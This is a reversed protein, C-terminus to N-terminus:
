GIAEVSYEAVLSHTQGADVKVLNEVANATEVCLMRLYGQEGLDGMKAATAQWPNWVVTSQSGSKKIVIRRKLLPDEIICDAGTNLYVRDVEQEISVAGQQQKRKFSDVKDLYECGDLGSLKVQSVDAVNFYTHLAEGIVFSEAGTNQTILEIKLSTGITYRMELLTAHPWQLDCAADATLRFSIVSCGDKAVATESVAWPQMRAYGHAPFSSNSEHPGFWPWCVPVGGRISKGTKFVADKSLWIVPEEGKPQWHVLHAGQLVIVAEAKDNRVVVQPQGAAGLEFVFQGAKGFQENLVNLDM